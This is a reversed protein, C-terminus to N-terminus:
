VSAAGGGTGGGVAGGSSAGVAGCEAAAAGGPVGFVGYAGGGAGERLVSLRGSNGRSARRLGRRINRGVALAALHAPRGGDEDQVEEM